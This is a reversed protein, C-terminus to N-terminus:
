KKIKLYRENRPGLYHIIKINEHPDLIMYDTNFKKAYMKNLEINQGTM